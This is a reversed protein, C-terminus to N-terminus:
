LSVIYLLITMNKYVSHRVNYSSTYLKWEVIPIKMLTATSEDSAARNIVVLPLIACDNIIGYMVQRGLVRSPLLKMTVAILTNNNHKSKVQVPVYKM